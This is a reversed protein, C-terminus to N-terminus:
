ICRMREGVERGDLIGQFIGTERHVSDFSIGISDDVTRGLDNAIVENSRKAAIRYIRISACSIIDIYFDM